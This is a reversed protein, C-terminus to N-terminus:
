TSRQLMGLAADLQSRLDQLHAEHLLQMAALEVRQRRRERAVL